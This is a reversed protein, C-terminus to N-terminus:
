KQFIGAPSTHHQLFWCTQRSDPLWTLSCPSPYLTPENILSIMPLIQGMITHLVPNHQFPGYKASCSWNKCSASSPVIYIQSIFCRPVGFLIAVSKRITIAVFNLAHLVYIRTPPTSICIKLCMSTFQLLPICIPPMSFCIAPGLTFQLFPFAFQLLPLVSQLRM